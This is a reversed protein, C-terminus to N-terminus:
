DILNQEKLKPIVEHEFISGVQMGNPINSSVWAIEEVENDPIIEGEWKNVIFVEMCLQRNEQGAAAACFTGFESLDDERVTLKFEEMLERTLASKVAEGEEVKGGPAVFFDKNKSKEVLLKRDKIIIGAAKHIDFAQKM